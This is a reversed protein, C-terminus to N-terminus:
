RGGGGMLAQTRLMGGRNGVRDCMTYPRLGPDGEAKETDYVMLAEIKADNPVLEGKARAETCRRQAWKASVKGFKQATLQRFLEERQEEFGEDSGSDKKDIGAILYGDATEFVQDIAEAKPDAEWAAATLEPMAGIGPISGDKPFLGTERMAPKDMAAGDASAGDGLGLSEIGTAASDLANPAKFLDTFTKDSKLELLAENAAQKALARGREEALAEAALERLADTEPVDGERRGDVRVLYFASEGELVDSVANIELDKATEDIVPDLGSGTGEVSVWGYDGGSRRTADNASVERAVARFDEGGDIRKAIARARDRALAIEALVAARTEEDADKAPDAPRTIEIFRLRVQKPLKTFRAGQSAFKAALEERHTGVYGDIEEPDPDYLQAYSRNSFRVYRLSLKNAQEDYAARLQSTPVVTSAAMLDRATRALLEQRQYELYKQESVSLRALISAKFVDYNFQQDPGLWPVTDGLIILKGDATLMEADRKVAALGMDEAAESVVIREVAGDLVEERLGILEQFQEDAPVPLIAGIANLQYNFDTQDVPHGHVRALTSTSNSFTDSPLGFSLTFAAAIVGLIVWVLIQRISLGESAAGSNSSSKDEDAM